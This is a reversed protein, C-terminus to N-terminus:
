GIVRSHLKQKVGNTVLVLINSRCPYVGEQGQVRLHHVVLNTRTRWFLEGSQTLSWVASQMRWTVHDTFLPDFVVVNRIGSGSQWSENVTLVKLNPKFIGIRTGLFLNTPIHGRFPLCYRRFGLLCGQTHVCRKLWWTPFDITSDSRCTLQHFPPIFLYLFENYKGNVCFCDWPRIQVLDPASIFTASM